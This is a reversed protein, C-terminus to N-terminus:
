SQLSFLRSGDSFEELLAAPVNLEGCRLRGDDYSWDIKRIVAVHTADAIANGTWVVPIPLLDYRLLKAFYDTSDFCVGLTMDPQEKATERVAEALEYTSGAEGYTGNSWEMAHVASLRLQDVAVRAGYLLQATLALGLLPLFAAAKWRIMLAVCALAFLLALVPVLGIGLIRYGRLQHYTSIVFSEPSAFHRFFAGVVGGPLIEVGLVEPPTESAPSALVILYTKETPNWSPSASLDVDVTSAADASPLDFRLMDVPNYQAGLMPAVFGSLGADSTYTVRLWRGGGVVTGEAMQESARAINAVETGLAPVPTIRLVDSQAYAVGSTTMAICGLCGLLRRKM